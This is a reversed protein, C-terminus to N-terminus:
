KDLKHNVGTTFPTEDLTALEFAPHPNLRNLGGSARSARYGASRPVIRSRPVNFRRGNTRNKAQLSSQGELRRLWLIGDATRLREQNDARHRSALTGVSAGHKRLCLPFRLRFIIMIRFVGHNM